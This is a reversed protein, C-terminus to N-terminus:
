PQNANTNREEQIKYALAYIRDRLNKYYPGNKLTLTSMLVTRNVTKNKIGKAVLRQTEEAAVIDLAERLSRNIRMSTSVLDASGKVPIIFPQESNM